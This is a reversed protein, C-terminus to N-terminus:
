FDSHNLSLEERISLADEFKILLFSLTINKEWTLSRVMSLPITM